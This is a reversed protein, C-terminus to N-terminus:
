KSVFGWEGGQHGYRYLLVYRVNFFKTLKDVTVPDFEVGRAASLVDGLAEASSADDNACLYRIIYPVFADPLSEVVGSCIGDVLIPM